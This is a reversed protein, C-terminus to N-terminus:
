PMWPMGVFSLGPQPSVGRVQIPFGDSDVVPLKVLGFDFGYGMAWIVTTVGAAKLDLSELIPQDFGDRLTPLEEATLDFFGTQDLWAFIDQGRYRRPLRGCRGTSLFVKRGSQYLEEAIQCGSQASGAVLVAGSPLSGPNRYAGSHLQTIDPALANAVPPIRPHQYLGTAM